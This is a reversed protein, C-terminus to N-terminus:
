HHPGIIQPGSGSHQNENYGKLLPLGDWLMTRCVEVIHNLDQASIDLKFYVGGGRVTPM